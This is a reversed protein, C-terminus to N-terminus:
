QQQQQHQYQNMQQEFEDLMSSSLPNADEEKPPRMVNGGIIHNGPSTSSHSQMQNPISNNSHILPQQPNHHASLVPHQINHHQPPQSTPLIHHTNGHQMEHSPPHSLQSLHPQHSLHNNGEQTPPMQSNQSHIDSANSTNSTAAVMEHSGLMPTHHSSSAHNSSTISQSIAQPPHYQSSINQHTATDSTQHNMDQSANPQPQLKINSKNDEMVDNMDSDNTDVDSNISEDDDDADDEDDATEMDIDTNDDHNIDTHDNPSLDSNINNTSEFTSVKSIIDNKNNSQIDDKGEDATVEEDDNGGDEGEEDPRSIIPNYVENLRDRLKQIKSEEEPLTVVDNETGPAGHATQAHM